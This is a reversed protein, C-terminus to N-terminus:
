HSLANVVMPRNETNDSEPFTHNEKSIREGRLALKWSSM